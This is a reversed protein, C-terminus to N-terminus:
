RIPIADGTPIGHEGFCPDLRGLDNKDKQFVDQYKSLLNEVLTSEDKNLGKISEQLLDALHSPVATNPTTLKKIQEIEEGPGPSEEHSEGIYRISIEKNYTEDDENL